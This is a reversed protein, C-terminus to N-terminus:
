HNLPKKRKETLQKVRKVKVLISRPDSPFIFISNRDWSQFHEILLVYFSRSDIGNDQFFNPKSPDPLTKLHFSNSWETYILKPPVGPSPLRFERLLRMVASACGFGFWRRWQSLQHCGKDVQWHHDFSGRNTFCFPRFRFSKTGQM